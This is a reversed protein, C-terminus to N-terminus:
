SSTSRGPQKIPHGQNLKWANSIAPTKDPTKKTVFELAEQLDEISAQLSKIKYQAEIIERRSSM